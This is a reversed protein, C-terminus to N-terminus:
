KQRRTTGAFYMSNSTMARIAEGGKDLVYENYESETLNVIVASSELIGEDNKFMGIVNDFYEVRKIPTVLGVNLQLSGRKIKKTAKTLEILAKKKFAEVALIYEKIHKAKNEKLIRILEAKKMKITRHQQIM